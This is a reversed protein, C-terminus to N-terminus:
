NLQNDFCDLILEYAIITTGQMALEVINMFFNTLKSNEMEVIFYEKVINQSKSFTIKSVKLM